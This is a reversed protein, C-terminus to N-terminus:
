LPFVETPRNLQLRVRLLFALLKINFGTRTIIGVINVLNKRRSRQLREPDVEDLM